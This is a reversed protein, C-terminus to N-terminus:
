KSIIMQGRVGPYTIKRGYKTLVGLCKKAKIKAEILTETDDPELELMDAGTATSNDSISIYKFYNALAQTYYKEIDGVEKAEEAITLNQEALKFTSLNRDPESNCSTFIVSAILGAAIMFINKM